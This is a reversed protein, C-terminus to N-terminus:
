RGAPGGRRRGSEDFQSGHCPCLWGGYTGGAAPVCGLHTCIALVVLYEPKKVREEDPQPDKLAALEQESLGRATEIEEKTRYKIFVPKGQWMVTKSDGPALDSLDVETTALARVDASPTMSKIFPYAACAAGVAGFGTTVKNLLDRREPNPADNQKKTSNLTDASM